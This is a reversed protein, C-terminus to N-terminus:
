GERKQKKLINTRNNNQLNLFENYNIVANRVISQLPMGYKKNIDIIAKDVPDGGTRYSIINSHEGKKLTRINM